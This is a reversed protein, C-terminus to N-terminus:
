LTAMLLVQQGSVSFLHAMLHTAQSIYGEARLLGNENNGCANMMVIGFKTIIEFGWRQRVHRAKRM